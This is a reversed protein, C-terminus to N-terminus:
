IKRFEATRPPQSYALKGGGRNGRKDSLRRPWSLYILTPNREFNTMMNPPFFYIPSWIQYFFILQHDYRTSVLYRPPWILYSCCLEIIMNPLFFLCIDKHDHIPLFLMYSHDFKTAVFYRPSLNFHLINHDYKIM